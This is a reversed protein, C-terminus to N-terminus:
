SDLALEAFDTSHHAVILTKLSMALYLMIDGCRRYRFRGSLPSAYPEDLRLARRDFPDNESGSATHNSSFRVQCAPFLTIRM